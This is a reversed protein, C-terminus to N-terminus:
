RGTEDLLEYDKMMEMLMFLELQDIIAEDEPRPAAKAPPKPAPAPPSSAPPQPALKPDFPKKVEAKKPPKPPKPKPPTQAQAPPPRRESAPQAAANGLTAGAGLLAFAVCLARRLARTAM